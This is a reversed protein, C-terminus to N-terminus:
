NLTRMVQYEVYTTHAKYTNDIQHIGENGTPMIFAEPSLVSKVREVLPQLKSYSDLPVYCRIYLLTYGTLANAAYPYTGGDHIVIYPEKCPSEYQGPLKVNLGASRLLQKVKDYLIEIM